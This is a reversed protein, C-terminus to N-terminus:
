YIRSRNCYPIANPDFISLFDEFFRKDVNKKFKVKDGIKIM